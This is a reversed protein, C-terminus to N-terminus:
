GILDVKDRMYPLAVSILRNSYINDGNTLMMYDCKPLGPMAQLEEQMILDSLTYSHSKLLYIVDCWVGTNIVLSFSNLMAAHLLKNCM